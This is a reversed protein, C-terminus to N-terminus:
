RNFYPHIEDKRSYARFYMSRPLMQTDPERLQRLSDGVQTEPDVPATSEKMKTPAPPLDQPADIVRKPAM